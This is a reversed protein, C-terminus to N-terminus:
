VENNVGADQNGEIPNKNKKKSTEVSPAKERSRGAL